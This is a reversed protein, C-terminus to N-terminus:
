RRPGKPFSWRTASGAWREPDSYFGFAVEPRVAYVGYVDPQATDVDENYKRRYATRFKRLLDAKRVRTVRGEVIVAEETRDTCVVCRPNAALNRGKRSEPSTSFYFENGLWVGWVIMAHPRGDPTATALWNNRSKKLRQMAWRWPLLGMGASAEAIGYAAPMKPRSAKPQTARTAM